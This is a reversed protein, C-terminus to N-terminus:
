FKGRHMTLSTRKTITTNLSSGFVLDLIESVATFLGFSADSLM